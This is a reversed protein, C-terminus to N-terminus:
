HPVIMTGNKRIVVSNIVVDGNQRLYIYGGGAELRLEGPLLGASNAAVGACLPNDGAHLILLRAGEAPLYSIGAPAFLNLGRYERQGTAGFHAGEFSVAAVDVHNSGGQSVPPKILSM